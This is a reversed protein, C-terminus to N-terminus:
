AELYEIDKSIDSVGIDIVIKLLDLALILKICQTKSVPQSNMGHFLLNRNPFDDNQDIKEFRLYIKDLFANISLLMFSSILRDGVVENTLAKFYKVANIGVDLKKASHSTLKQYNLLLNEIRGCALMAAADWYGAVFCAKMQDAIYRPINESESINEFTTSLSSDISGLVHIDAEEQTLGCVFMTSMPMEDSIVWGLEAWSYISRKKAEIKESTFEAAFVAATKQLKSTIEVYAPSNFYKSFEILSNAMIRQTSEMKESIPKLAKIFEELFFGYGASDSTNMQKENGKSDNNV